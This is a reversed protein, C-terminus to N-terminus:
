NNLNNVIKNVLDIFTCIKKYKIKLIYIVFIDIFILLHSNM